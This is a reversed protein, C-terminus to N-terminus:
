EDATLDVSAEYKEYKGMEVGFEEKIDNTKKEDFLKILVDAHCPELPKCWCGLVKDELTDLSNWLQPTQRICREYATLLSIEEGNAFPQLEKITKYWISNPNGTKKLYKSLNGHIYLHNPEQVWKSLSTGKLKLFEKKVCNRKPVMNIVCLNLHLQCCYHYM